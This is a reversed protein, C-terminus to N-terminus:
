NPFALVLGILWCGYMAVMYLTTVTLEAKDWKKTFHFRSSLLQYITRMVAYIAFCTLATMNGAQQAFAVGVITIVLTIFLFIHHLYKM